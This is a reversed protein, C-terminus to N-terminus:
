IMVDSCLRFGSLNQEHFPMRLSSALAALRSIGPNPSIMRFPLGGFLVEPFEGGGADDALGRDVVDEDVGDVIELLSSKVMGIGQIESGRGTTSLDGRRRLEM